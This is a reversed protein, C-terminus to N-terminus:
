NKDKNSDSDFKALAIERVLKAVRDEQLRRWRFNSITSSIFAFTVLYTLLETGSRVGLSQSIQTWLDAFVLSAIGAFVFMAFAVRRIALQRTSSGRLLYFGTLILFGAFILRMTM